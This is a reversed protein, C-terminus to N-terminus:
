YYKTFWLNIETSGVKKNKQIQYRKKIMTPIKKLAGFYASFLVKITDLVSYKEIFERAICREKKTGIILSIYKKALYPISLILYKLPFNKVILWIRNRELHYAKFISRYGGTASHVHYIIANPVFICIWGMLRARWALDLDEAYAFFDEDFFENNLNIDELMERKYLVAAGDAGFIERNKNYIALKERDGSGIVRGFGDYSIQFGARDILEPNSFLLLKSQCMGIKEESQAVRVLEMLWNEDVKTDNNLCAIYKVDEDEFAKNMGINNSRAFGTNENLKILKINSFKRKVLEVSGDTSGNDVLIIEYNLYTQNMLSLICMELYRKGNWNPIVVSVKPYMTIKNRERM